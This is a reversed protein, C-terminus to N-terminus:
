NELRLLQHLCHRSPPLEDSCLQNSFERRSDPISAGTKFPSTLRRVWSMEVRSLQRERSIIGSKQVCGDGLGLGIGRGGRGVADTLEREWPSRECHGIACGTGLSGVGTGDGGVRATTTQVSTAAAGGSSWARRSSSARLMTRACAADMRRQMSFSCIRSASFCALM